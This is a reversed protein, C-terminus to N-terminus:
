MKPLIAKTAEDSEIRPNESFYKKPSVGFEFLFVDLSM